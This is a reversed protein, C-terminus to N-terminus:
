SSGIEVPGGSRASRVVADIVRMNAIGNEAPLDIAAGALIRGAFYEAELRWQHQAKIRITETNGKGITHDTLILETDVVRGFRLLDIQAFAQPIHLNGREGYVTCGQEFHGDQLYLNTDFQLLEGGPFHVTASTREDVGHAGVEQAAYVRLPEAGILFRATNICYCGIDM